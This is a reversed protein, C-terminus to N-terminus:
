NADDDVGEAVLINCDISWGEVNVIGIPGGANSLAWVPIGMETAMIVESIAGPSDKWGPMVFVYDVNAIMAYDMRFYWQRSMHKVGGATEAPNIVVYGLGRLVGAVRNFERFNYDEVGKMKGSLYVVIDDM